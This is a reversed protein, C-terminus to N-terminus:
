DYEEEEAPDHNAPLVRGDYSLAIDAKTLNSIETKITAKRIRTYVGPDEGEVLDNLYQITKYNLVRLRGNGRKGNGREMLLGRKRLQYLANSVAPVSMKLRIAFEKVTLYCDKHQITDELIVTMVMLEAKNLFYLLVRPIPLVMGKFVTESGIYTVVEYEIKPMVISQEAAM